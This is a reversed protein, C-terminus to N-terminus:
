DYRRALARRNPRGNQAWKSNTRAAAAVKPSASSERMTHDFFRKQWFGVIVSSAPFERGPIANCSRVAVCSHNM